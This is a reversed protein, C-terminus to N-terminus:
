VTTLANSPVSAGKAKNFSDVFPQKPTYNQNIKYGVADVNGAWGTYWDQNTVYRSKDGTTPPLNGKMNKPIEDINNSINKDTYKKIESLGFKGQQHAIYIELPNGISPKSELGPINKFALYVAALASIYDDFMSNTTPKNVAVDKSWQSSSPTNPPYIIKNDSSLSAHFTYEARTIKDKLYSNINSAVETTAGLGFQMLGLFGSSNIKDGSGGGNSEMIAMIKLIDVDFGTNINIEDFIENYTMFTNNKKTNSKRDFNYANDTAQQTRKNFSDIYIDGTAAIDIVPTGASNSSNPSISGDYIIENINYKEGSNSIAIDLDQMAIVQKNIPTNEKKVRVGKFTTTMHNPKISHSTNIIVYAGRFMPVNNLQFYMMPQILPM